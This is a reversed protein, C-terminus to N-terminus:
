HNMGVMHERQSIRIGETSSLRIELREFILNWKQQKAEILTQEINAESDSKKPLKVVDWSGIKQIMPALLKLQCILESIRCTMWGLILVDSVM